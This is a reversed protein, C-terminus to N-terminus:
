KDASSEVVMKGTQIGMASIVKWCYLGSPLNALNLREIHLSEGTEVVKESLLAGQLTSIQIRVVGTQLTRIYLYFDGSTPSPGAQVQAPLGTLGSIQIIESEFNRNGNVDLGALRFWPGRHQMRPLEVQYNAYFFPMAEKTAATVFKQLDESEELLYLSCPENAGTRWYFYLFEKLAAGGFQLEDEALPTCVIASCIANCAKPTPSGNNAWTGGGDSTRYVTQNMSPGAGAYGILGSMGAAPTLSSAASGSPICPSSAFDADSTLKGTEGSSFTWYVADVPNGTPDYLAVWGDGNEMYWRSDGDTCINATACLSTLNIDVNPANPGGLVLFSLPPITTGAPLMVAGYNTSITRAGLIYGTLNVSACASPNYLEVWEAGFTPNPCNFMSQFQASLGDTPPRVQVENIVVSQALLFIPSFLFPITFFRCFPKM